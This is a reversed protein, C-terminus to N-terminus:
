FIFQSESECIQAKTQALSIHQHETTVELHVQSSSVATFLKQKRFIESYYMKIPTFLTYM